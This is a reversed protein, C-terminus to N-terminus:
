ILISSAEHPEYGSQLKISELHPKKNTPHHNSKFISKLIIEKSKHSSSIAIILKPKIPPTYKANEKKTICDKFLTLWGSAMRVIFEIFETIRFDGKISKNKKEDNMAEMIKKSFKIKYLNIDLSPKALRINRIPINRHVALFFTGSLLFNASKSKLSGDLFGL